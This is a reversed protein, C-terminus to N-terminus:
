VSTQKRQRQSEKRTVTEQSQLVIATSTVALTTLLPPHADANLLAEAEPGAM